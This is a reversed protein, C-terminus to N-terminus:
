GDTDDTFAIHGERLHRDFDTLPIAALGHTEGDVWSLTADLATLQVRCPGRPALYISGDGQRVALEGVIRASRTVPAMATGKAPQAEAEASLATIQQAMDSGVRGPPPAGEATFRSDADPAAPPPTSPDPTM